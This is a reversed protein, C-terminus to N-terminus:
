RSKRDPEAIAVHSRKMNVIGEGEKRLQQGRTTGKKCGVVIWDIGKENWQIKLSKLREEADKM